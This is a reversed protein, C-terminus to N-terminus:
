KQTKNRRSCSINECRMTRGLKTTAYNCIGDDRLDECKSNNCNQAANIGLEFFHKASEYFKETNLYEGMWRTKLEGDIERELDVDKVELTDIFCFLEEIFLEGSLSKSTHYLADLRNIEAVLASKDIYQAM